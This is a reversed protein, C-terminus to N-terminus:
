SKKKSVGNGIFINWIAWEIPLEKELEPRPSEPRAKFTVTTCEHYFWRDIAPYEWFESSIEMSDKTDVLPWTRSKSALYWIVKHEIIVVLLTQHLKYTTCPNYVLWIGLISTGGTSFIVVTLNVEPSDIWIDFELHSPKDIACPSTVDLVKM